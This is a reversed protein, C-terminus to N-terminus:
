TITFDKHVKTQLELRLDRHQARHPRRQREEDHAGAGEEAADEDEDEERLREALLQRVRHLFRQIKSFHKM